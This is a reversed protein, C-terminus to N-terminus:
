YNEEEKVWDFRRKSKDWRLVSSVDCDMCDWLVISSDEQAKLAAFHALPMEELFRIKRAGNRPADLILLFFGKEGGTCHRYVGVLATQEIKSGDFHGEVAFSLGGTADINEGLLGSPILERTVENAECWNKNIRTVPIGRVEKGFPHYNARLYWALFDPKEPDLTVFSSRNVDGIPWNIDGTLVPPMLKWGAGTRIAEVPLDKRLEAGVSTTVTMKLHDDGDWGVFHYVAYKGDPLQYRWEPLAMTAVTSWIEIAYGGAKETEPVVAFRKGSPAYHPPANLRIGQVVLPLTRPDIQALTVNSAVIATLAILASCPFPLLRLRM